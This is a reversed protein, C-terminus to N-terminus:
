FIRYDIHLVVLVVVALLSAYLAIVQHVLMEPSVLSRRAIGLVLVRTVVVIVTLKFSYLEGGLDVILHAFVRDVLKRM